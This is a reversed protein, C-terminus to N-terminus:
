SDLLSLVIRSKGSSQPGLVSVIHYDQDGLDCEDKIFGSTDKRCEIPFYIRNLYIRM